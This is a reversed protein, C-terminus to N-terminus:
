VRRVSEEQGGLRESDKWEYTLGGQNHRVMTNSQQTDKESRKKNSEEIREEPTMRGERRGVVSKRGHMGGERKRGGHTQGDRKRRHTRRAGKEGERRREGEGTEAVRGGAGYGPREEEM